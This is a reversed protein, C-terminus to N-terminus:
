HQENLYRVLSKISRNIQLQKQARTVGVYLLNVEQEDIEEPNLMIYEDDEKEILTIYDDTLKVQPWELGKSKHATTFLIDAQKPNYSNKIIQEILIPVDHRYRKVVKARAKLEVDPADKDEVIELFEDFNKFRIIYFDKIKAKQNSFLYYVDLIRDFYYQTFPNYNEKETTGVFGFTKNPSHTILNAAEDFLVANTRAIITYPQNPNVPGIADHTQFGKVTEKEAKFNKLLLNATDAIKPGFRFSTTLALEIDPKVKSLADHAWRFDYIAQHSDGVLIKSGTQNEFVDLLVDNTDHAEDLLVYDYPLIPFSLQWIKQYGDHTMPIKTDKTDKMREWLERTKKVLYKRTSPDKSMKYEELTKERDLVLHEETIETDRSCLYKVLVEIIFKGVAFKAVDLHDKLIYPKLNGLKHKYKFGVDRFALAHGTKCIVNFPFTEEAEKAAAANYVIYVFTKEMRKNAYERLVTTKSGGAFSRILLTKGKPVETEIIKKQEDTLTM